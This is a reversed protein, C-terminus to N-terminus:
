KRNSKPVSVTTTRTAANGAGDVCRTTITYVRGNGTGSREARLQLTLPGTILWDNPTDGDGLGNQPENSSVTAISCVPPPALNDTASVSLTVPTMRHNPPGLTSVSPTASSIVPPITDGVTITFSGAASNGANDNATCTVMTTGVPYIAGAVHSCSSSGLGSTADSPAFTFPVAAGAPGSAQTTIDALPGLVPATADRKVSVTRTTTGGGSTATCTASAAGDAVVLLPDCGTSSSIATQPDAVTFGVTVDSTYWDNSGLVGVVSPSVDPATPDIVIVTFVETDTNGSGDTATCSVTTTGYGFTSGSAPTCVTTVPGAIDTASVTWSVAMGGPDTATETIDAIGALDPPTTDKVTVTFAASATNGSPDSASCNVPTTGYPFLSGSEPTCTVVSPGSAADSATATWSVQEGASTTGAVELNSLADIVPAADDVITVTFTHASQNGAVDTATCEVPSSGVPFMSGAAPVCTFSALGSGTGDTASAGDYAVPTLMATAPTAIDPATISPATQDIRVDGEVTSAGGLSASTCAYHHAGDAAFLQMECQSATTQPDVVLFHVAVPSRYWGDNGAVGEVSVSITPPSPDNVTVNFSGLAVNGAGDVANCQVTTTGYPFTFGSQQSCFVPRAGSVIDTATATFTHVAGAGTGTLTVDSPLTLAPATTDVIEFTGTCSQVPSFADNITASYSHSGLPFMANFPPVNAPPIINAFSARLVSDVFLRYVLGDGDGDAVHASLSWNAGGPGTAEITGGSAVCNITPPNNTVNINVHRTGQQGNGNVASFNVIYSGGQTPGPTWMFTSSANGFPSQTPLTPSMNAGLPMTGVALTVPSNNASTSVLFSVPTGRVVNFAPDSAVGDILVTPPSGVNTVPMLLVDVVTSAGEDDRVKFQANYLGGLTTGATNWTVLGTVANITMGTPAAVQMGSEATSSIAYTLVDGDPDFAPVVFTASANHPVAIVPLSSSTPPRNVPNRVTISSRVRFDRDANGGLLTGIRCCDFFEVTYNNPVPGSFTVDVEYVGMMWDEQQNISTVRLTVPWNNRTGIGAVNVNIASTANANYMYMRELTVTSGLKPCAGAGTLDTPDFPLNPPCLDQAGLPGWEFSWRFAAELRIRVVNPQAPNPTSWTITGYRFHSAQAEQAPVGLAFALAGLAVLTRRLRIMTPM